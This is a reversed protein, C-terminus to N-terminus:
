KEAVFVVPARSVVLPADLEPVDAHVGFLARSPGVYALVGARDRFTVTGRAERKEVQPFHMRLMDAAREAPFTPDLRPPLGLLNRLEQLHDLGNTVAVLRGGPRLVRALEGLARPVDPVHYLMWAAVACDFEGDGFPLDQVDGLRANVGRGCALEVMRESSDIAVVEAGLEDQVRASLEGPGCGVELFRRPAVEAVAEFVMEPADPGTTPNVAYAARRAMLGAESGYERRVIDPDHQRTM